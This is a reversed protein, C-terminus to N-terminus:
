GGLLIGVAEGVSAVVHDPRYGNETWDRGHAMWITAFGMAAAGGIDHAPSDGVMTVGRGAGGATGCMEIAREFIRRDPKTAGVVDSICLGDVLGALGSREVKVRQYAPGNTVVVVSRGAERLRVLAAVVAPDPRFHTLFDHRYRGVLEEVSEPLTWRDRADAFLADRRAHGGRDADCLWEVAARGLGREAAFDEAWRRYAGRRDVLTDDLDFLAVDHV